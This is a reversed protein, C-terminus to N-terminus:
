SRSAVAHVPEVATAAREEVRSKLARNFAAYWGEGHNKAFFGEFPKTLAGSFTETNNVTTTGDDNGVLTFTHEGLFLGTSIIKASWQLERSPTAATVTSPFSMGPMRMKLKSGLEPSGVIESFNSWDGYEAFDSLVEWVQHRGGATATCACGSGRPAAGRCRRSRWARGRRRARGHTPPGIRHRRSRRSTARRGRIPEPM